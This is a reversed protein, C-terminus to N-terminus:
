KGLFVQAEAEASLLLIGRRLLRHQWDLLVSFEIEEASATETLVETALAIWSKQGDCRRLCAAVVPPIAELRVGMMERSILYPQLPYEACPPLPQARRLAELIDMLFPGAELVSAWEALLPGPTEPLIRPLSHYKLQLLTREYNLVQELHPILIRDQELAHALGSLLAMDFDHGLKGSLLSLPIKDLLEELYAAGLLFAIHTPILSRLREKQAQRAVDLWMHREAPVCAPLDAYVENSTLHVTEDPAQLLWEEWAQEWADLGGM